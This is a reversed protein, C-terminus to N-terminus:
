LFVHLCQNCTQKQMKYTYKSPKACSQLLELTNAIYYSCDQVLGDFKWIQLVIITLISINFILSIGSLISSTFNFNREVPEIPCTSPKSCSHPLEMALVSHNSCDHVLGDIDNHCGNCPCIFCWYICMEWQPWPVFGLWTQPWDAWGNTQFYTLWVFQEALWLGPFSLSEASWSWFNM